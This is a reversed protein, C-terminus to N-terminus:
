RPVEAAPHVITLFQATLRRALAPPDLPFRAPEAGDLSWMQQIVAVVGRWAFDVDRAVEDAPRAIREVLLGALRESGARIFGAARQNTEEDDALLVARFIHARDVAFAVLGEILAGVTDDVTAWEVRHAELLADLQAIGDAIVREHLALVLAQKGDFRAYVSTVSLGATAAVDRMSVQRLARHRLLTAFADLAGTQARRSREQQAPRIRALADSVVANVNL